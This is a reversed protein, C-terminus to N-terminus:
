LVQVGEIQAMYETYEKDLAQRLPKLYEAYKAWANINGAHIPKQVQAASLTSAKYPKPASQASSDGFRCYAKIRAVTEDHRLVLDEYRIELMREGLAERWFAMVRAYNRYYSALSDLGYSATYAGRAFLQKYGSFCADMPNRRIHIIRSNPLAKAIFGAYTFNSTEKDTFYPRGKTRWATKELYQKGLQSLDMMGEFPRKVIDISSSFRLNNQIEIIRRFTQHEGVAEVDALSTIVKELLTTGTRPLGFIFVPAPINVQDLQLSKFDMGSLRDLYNDVKETHENIDFQQSKSNLENALQLYSFSKEIDGNAEYENYLAFGLMVKKEEPMELKLAAEFDRIRVERGEPEGLMSLQWASFPDGPNIALASKFMDKAKDVEGTFLLAMGYSTLMGEDMQSKPVDKFLDKAAEHRDLSQLHIVMPHTEPSSAADNIVYSMATDFASKSEGVCRLMKSVYLVEAFNANQTLANKASQAYVLTKQMDGAFYYLESLAALIYPNGPNDLLLRGLVFEARSGQGSEYYEFASAIIAHIESHDM